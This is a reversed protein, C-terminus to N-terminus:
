LEHIHKYIKSHLLERPKWQLRHHHQHHHHHHHNHKSFTGRHGLKTSKIKLKNAQKRLKQEHM